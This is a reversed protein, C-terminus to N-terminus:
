YKKIGFSSKSTNKELKFEVPITLSTRVKEGNVRGPKWKPSAGVVKLVEADIAPSLGKLIRVDSVKGDKGIVFDVMVRGQIGENVAEKPYKLYQYVWKNLFQAPDTSNLFVPRQDCDYFPVVDDYESLRKQVDKPRFSLESDTNALALTFNYLYELEREMNEFDLIKETDRETNHEPYRGTTFMVSPIEMSYFARHDSPYPESAVVEPQIPQLDVTLSNVLANMDANSSTYAYFGKYGTGLMDLNVMADIKDVDAFERNLFYWSGAYTEASAGFAVFLVTRRFLVSNTQVMRALELMMSLGSANGNAGTLIKEVPKGDVTMTMMGLNDLRAGVVIYRDRLNKDYGPVFGIVNRSTLTDAGDKSIGFVGGEEPTLLEVDYEKFIDAVYEAALREGESGAKRGEMQSACLARVHAKLAAVTESDYLEQYSFGERFQATVNLVPLLMLSLILFYRKMKMRNMPLFGSMMLASIRKM